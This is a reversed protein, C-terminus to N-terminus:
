GKQYYFREHAVKGNKWHRVAVQAGKIRGAGKYTVDFEWESYTLDGNVASGLLKAGHFQEVSDLFAQEFKRNVAKSVRPEELNEQMVVDDAYFKDFAGLIDGALIQQNLQDDLTKVNTINQTATSM